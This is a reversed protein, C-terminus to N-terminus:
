NKKRQVIWKVRSALQVRAAEPALMEEKLKAEQQQKTVSEPLKYARLLQLAMQRPDETQAPGASAEAETSEDADATTATGLTLSEETDMAVDQQEREAM